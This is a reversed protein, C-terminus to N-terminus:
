DREPPRAAAQSERNPTVRRPHVHRPPAPSPSATARPAAATAAQTPHPSSRSTEQRAGAQRARTGSSARATRPAAPSSGASPRSFHAAWRGKSAPLSSPLGPPSPLEKRARQGEAQGLRRQRAGAACSNSGLRAQSPPAPPGRLARPGTTRRLPGASRRPAAPLGKSKLQHEPKSLM